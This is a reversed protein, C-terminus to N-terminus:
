QYGHIDLLVLGPVNINESIADHDFVMTESAKFDMAESFM